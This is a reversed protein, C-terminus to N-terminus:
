EARRVVLVNEAIVMLIEDELEQVWRRYEEARASGSEIAEWHRLAQRALDYDSCVARFEPDSAHLRRVLFEHDPFRSVVGMVESM